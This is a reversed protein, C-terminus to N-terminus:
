NEIEIDFCDFERLDIEALDFSSIDVDAFELDLFDFDKFEKELIEAIDNEENESSMVGFDSNISGLEMCESMYKLLELDIEETDKEELNTYEFSQLELNQIEIEEIIIDTSELTKLGCNQLCNEFEKLEFEITSNRNFESENM